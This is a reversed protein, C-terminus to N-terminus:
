CKRSDTVLTINRDHEDLLIYDVEAVSKETVSIGDQAAKEQNREFSTNLFLPFRNVLTM